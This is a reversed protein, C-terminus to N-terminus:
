RALGVALKMQSQLTKNWPEQTRGAACCLELGVPRGCERHHPTSQLNHMYPVSSLTHLTNKMTCFTQHAKQIIIGCAHALPLTIPKTQRRYDTTLVFIVLDPSRPMQAVRLYLMDTLIASFSAETHKSDNALAWSRQLYQSKNAM